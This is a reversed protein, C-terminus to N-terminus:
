KGMVTMLRPKMRAAERPYRLQIATRALESDGGVEVVLVKGAEERVTLRGAYVVDGPDLAIASVRSAPEIGEEEGLLRRGGSAAGVLRYVGPALAEVAVVGPELTIRLTEGSGERRWETVLPEAAGAHGFGGDLALVAHITPQYLAAGVRLNGAEAPSEAVEPAQCSPLWFLLASVLVLWALRQM